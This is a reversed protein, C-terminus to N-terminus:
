CHVQSKRLLYHGLSFNRERLNRAEAEASIKRKGPQVSCIPCPVDRARRGQTRNAENYLEFDSGISLNRRFRCSCLM